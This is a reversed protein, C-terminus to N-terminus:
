SVRRDRGKWYPERLLNKQVKGTANRPLEDIPSVKTPVKFHALKGRCFEILLSESFSNKDSPVVLALVTEGWHEDPIGIVAVDLVAPHDLLVNEVEKASINEGGSIVMDKKRDSIFLYGEEDLYGIDGTLYWGNRFANTTQDPNQWYGSMATPSKVCIEGHNLPSLLNGADDQISLEIGPIVKGASLLVEHRGSTHDAPGLKTVAGGLETCGYGQEFDVGFTALARELLQPPMASAGYGICRLSGFDTSACDPHEMVQQMAAPVLIVRSIQHTEINQLFLQPSFERLVVNCGGKAFVGLGITTGGLHCVPMWLLHVEDYDETDAELDFRDALCGHSLIAGKPLGTTGSTYMIIAASDRLPRGLLVSDNATSYWESFDDHAQDHDLLILDSGAHNVVEKFERDVFIVKPRTENLIHEVEAPSFRWNIPVMSVGAKMSGVLAEFYRDSNKGLYAIRDGSQLGTSNMKNAIKNTRSQLEAYTVVRDKYVMAKKRPHVEAFNQLTDLFM